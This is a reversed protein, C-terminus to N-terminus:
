PSAESPHYVVIIEVRCNGSGHESRNEKSLALCESLPHKQGGIESITGYINESDEVSWTYGHMRVIDVAGLDRYIQRLLLDANSAYFSDIRGPNNSEFWFDGDGSPPAQVPNEYGGTLAIREIILADPDDRTRNFGKRQKEKQGM